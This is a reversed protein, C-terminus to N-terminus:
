LGSHTLGTYMNALNNETQKAIAMDLKQQQVLLLQMQTLTAQTSLQAETASRQLALAAMQPDALLNNRIANIIKLIGKVQDISGSVINLQKNLLDNTANIYNKFNNKDKDSCIQCLNNAFNELSQLDDISNASNAVTQLYTAYEAITANYNQFAPSSINISISDGDNWVSYTPVAANAIGFGLLAGIFVLLYMKFM